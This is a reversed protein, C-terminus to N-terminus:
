VPLSKIPILYLLGESFRTLHASTMRILRYDPNIFFFM